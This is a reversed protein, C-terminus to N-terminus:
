FLLIQTKFGAINKRPGLYSRYMNLLIECITIRRSFYSFPGTVFWCILKYYKTIHFRLVRRHNPLWVVFLVNHIQFTHLPGTNSENMKPFHLPSSEGARSVSLFLILERSRLGLTLRRSNKCVMMGVNHLEEPYVFFWVCFYGRWAGM